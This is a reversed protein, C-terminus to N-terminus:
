KERPFMLRILIEAMLLFLPISIIAPAYWPIASVKLLRISMALPAVVFICILVILRARTRGTFTYVNM